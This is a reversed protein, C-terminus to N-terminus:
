YRYRLMYIIASVRTGYTVTGLTSGAAATQLDPAQLSSVQSDTPQLNATNRIRIRFGIGKQGRSGPNLIPLFM